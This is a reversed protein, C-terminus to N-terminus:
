STYIKLNILRQNILNLYYISKEDEIITDSLLKNTKAKNGILAQDKLLKFNDNVEINLLLELKETEIISKEFFIKIKDIENNLKARDFRNKRNYSKFKISYSRYFGKLQNNIIKKLSIENDQYCPIVAFEKSKEFFNRIKSKKRFGRLIFFKTSM